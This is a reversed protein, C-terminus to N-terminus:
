SRWKAGVPFIDKPINHYELTTLDAPGIGPADIPFDVKAVSDWFARHHVRDKLVIIDLSPVDIGIASLGASDNSWRM